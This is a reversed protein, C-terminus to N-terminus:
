GVQNLTRSLEQIMNVNLFDQNSTQQKWQKDRTSLSQSAFLLGLLLFMYPLTLIVICTESTAIYPFLVTGLRAFIRFGQSGIVAHTDKKL